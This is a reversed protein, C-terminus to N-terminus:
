VYGWIWGLILMIWLVTYRPVAEFDSQGCCVWTLSTAAYCPSITVLVNVHSLCPPSLKPTSESINALWSSSLVAYCNIIARYHYSKYKNETTCYFLPARSPAVLRFTTPEIGSTTVPFNWQCLGEPRVVARPNVWCRVSIFVLSIEQLYLRGTRLASLRVLNM